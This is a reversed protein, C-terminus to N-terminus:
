KNKANNKFYHNLFDIMAQTQIAKAQNRERTVAKKSITIRATQKKLNSQCKRLLLKREDFTMKGYAFQKELEDEEDTYDDEEDTYDDEKDQLSVDITKTKEYNQLISHIEKIRDFSSKLIDRIEKRKSISDVDNKTGIAALQKKNKDSKNYLMGKEIVMAKLENPLDKIATAYKFKEIAKKPVELVTQDEKKKSLRELVTQKGSHATGICGELLYIIKKHSAEKKFRKRCIKAFRKKSKPHLEYLELAEYFLPEKQEILIKIKKHLDLM